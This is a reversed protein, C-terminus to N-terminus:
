ASIFVKQSNSTDTLCSVKQEFIQQIAEITLVDSCLGAKVLTHHKFLAVHTAYKASINIDHSSMVVLNGKNALADCLDMLKVQYKLDLSANPEDLLILAEGAEISPWIQLLCRAIHVRQQEGGSLHDVRTNFFPIVHLAKELVEPLQIISNHHHNDSPHYFSLLEQVTIAFPCQYSQELLCRRQALEHLSFDLLPQSELTVKGSGQILLGAILSLFSTKGAGNPGLLHWFEGRKLSLTDISLRAELKVEQCQLM